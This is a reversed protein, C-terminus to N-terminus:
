NVVLRQGRMLKEAFSVLGVNEPNEVEIYGKMYDEGRQTFGCKM